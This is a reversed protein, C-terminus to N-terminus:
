DHNIALLFHGNPLDVQILDGEDSVYAKQVEQGATLEVCSGNFKRGTVIGTFHGVVKAKFQKVGRTVPDIRIFSKEPLLVKKGDLM